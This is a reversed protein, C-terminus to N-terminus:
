FALWFVALTLAVPQVSKGPEEKFDSIARFSRRRDRTESRNNVAVLVAKPWIVEVFQAPYRISEPPKVAM